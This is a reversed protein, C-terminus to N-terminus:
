ARIADWAGAVAAPDIDAAIRAAGVADLVILRLRGSQVKKDFTMARMLEDVPPLEARLPLGIAHLLRQVRDVVARSCLGADSSLSAAAVLGLSVAEGHHLVGYGRTAEIAHAFTHGLNLLARENEEKEDRMVVGAKLAVNRAVLEELAAAELSQIRSLNAETWAFLDADGLLGHKVCEAMGCRFERAPLTRLTDPDIVVLVPQHFAGILNKGQPVNVGVKGGVSADVMALLTTPCQVFPVGRLYTAAAFGVTDGTVGGGLAIIPSRRDMHAELLVDYLGAVTHLNKNEEGPEVPEATVTYGAGRLAARAPEGYLRDVHRDAFLACRPSAAVKRLEEGLCALAGVKVLVTYRHHPLIVDITRM